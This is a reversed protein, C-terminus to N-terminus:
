RTGGESRGRFWSAVGRGNSQTRTTSSGLKKILSDLELRILELLKVANWGALSSFPLLPRLVSAEDPLRYSHTENVVM